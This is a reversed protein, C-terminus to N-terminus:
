IDLSFSHKWFHQSTLTLMFGLLHTTMTKELIIIPHIIKLPLVNNSRLICAITFMGIEIFGCYIYTNLLM